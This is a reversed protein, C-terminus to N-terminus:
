AFEKEFDKQQSTQIYSHIRERTKQLDASNFLVVYLAQGDVVRQGLVVGNTNVLIGKLRLQIDKLVQNRVLENDSNLFFSMGVSSIDQITGNIQIENLKFNMSAEETCQYRIYKRRGKAENAHLIKLMMESAAQVGQKLMIFGCSIGLEMMYHQVRQPETIKFSFIGLRIGPKNFQLDAIFDEWEYENMVADINLFFLTEPYSSAIWKIKTHDLLTYVEYERGTLFGLMHKSVLDPPHVFVIRKGIIEKQLEM